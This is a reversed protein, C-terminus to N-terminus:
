ESVSDSDHHVSEDELLEYEEAALAEEEAIDRLTEINIDIIVHHANSRIYSLKVVKGSDLRSRLKSHIFGMTSNSREVCASSAILSFVRIGLYKLLPWKNGGEVLFYDLM